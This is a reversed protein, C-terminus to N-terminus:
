NNTHHSAKIRLDFAHLIKELLQMKRDDLPINHQELHSKLVHFMQILDITEKAMLHDLLIDANYIHSQLNCVKLFTKLAHRLHSEKHKQEINGMMLDAFVSYLMINDNIQESPIQLIIRRISQLYEMAKQKQSANLACEALLPYCSCIDTYIQRNKYAMNELLSLASGLHIEAQVYDTKHIHIKAGYIHAKALNHQNRRSPFRNTVYQYIDIAKQINNCAMDADDMKLYLQAFKMHGMAEDKITQESPLKQRNDKILTMAQQYYNMCEEINGSLESEAKGTLSYLVALMRNTAISPDSKNLVEAQPIAEKCLTVAEELRYGRLLNDIMSCYADIEIVRHRQQTSISKLRKAYELEKQCYSDSLDADIDVLMFSLSSYSYYLQKLSLIRLERDSVNELKESYAISELLMKKAQEHHGSKSFIYGITGYVTSLIFWVEPSNSNKIQEVSTLLQETKPLTTEPRDNKQCVVCLFSQLLLSLNIDGKKLLTDCLETTNRYEGHANFVDVINSLLHWFLTVNMKKKLLLLFRASQSAPIKLFANILRDRLEDDDESYLQHFLNTEHCEIIHEAGYKEIYALDPYLEVEDYEKKIFRIIFQSGEDSGIYYDASAQPDCLWDKVAKHYFGVEGSANLKIMSRTQRQFELIVTETIGLIETVDQLSIAGKAVCLLQLLPKIQHHYVSMDKSYVRHLWNLYFVGISKPYDSTNLLTGHQDIIDNILYTIYLFNGESNKVALDVAIENYPVANATLRDILYERCDRYNEESNRDLNIEESFPFYTKIGSDPRSTIILKFWKPWKHQYTNIAYLLENRQDLTMEDVADIIVVVPQEPIPICDLSTVFLLDMLQQVSKNGRRNIELLSSLHEAYEVIQVSLQYALSGLINKADLSAANDFSCIHIIYPLRACFATKGTGALGTVLMVPSSLPTGVWQETKEFLTKRGVFDAIKEEIIRSFDFSETVLQQELASMNNYMVNTQGNAIALILEFAQKREDENYVLNGNEDYRLILEIWQIRCILLPAIVNEIKFPLIVKQFEKARAIEDLCFGNPRTSHHSLVSIFMDCSQIAEDISIDYNTTPEIHKYECNRNRRMENDKFVTHGNNILFNGLETIFPEYADHGYSIFINAM